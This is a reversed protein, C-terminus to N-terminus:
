ECLVRFGVSSAQHSPLAEFPETRNMQAEKAENFWSGGRLVKSDPGYGDDATWEWVNGILDYAGSVRSVGLPYCGVPTTVGLGSEYTNARSPDFGSGWPYAPSATGETGASSGAAALWESGTPLRCPRQQQESLWRCYARAEFWNVGVVPQTPQNWLGNEWYRPARVSQAHKWGAEDWYASVTYGGAELFHRYQANTVPYKGLRFSTGPVSVRDDRDRPYDLMGWALGLSLRERPTLEPRELMAGIRAAYSESQSSSKLRQV